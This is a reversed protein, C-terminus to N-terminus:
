NKILNIREKMLALRKERLLTRRALDYEARKDKLLQVNNFESQLVSPHNLRTIEYADLEINAKKALRFRSREDRFYDYPSKFALMKLLTPALQIFIIALILVWSVVPAVKFAIKSGSVFGPNPSFQSLVFLKDRQSILTQKSIKLYILGLPNNENALNDQISKDFRNLESTIFHICDKIQKSSSSVRIVYRPSIAEDFCTTKLSNEPILDYRSDAEKQPNSDIPIQGQPLVQSNPLEYAQRYLDRLHSLNGQDIADFTKELSQQIELRYAINIDSKFIWLQFPIAIMFSCIASFIIGFMARGFQKLGLPQSSASNETINILKQTNFIFLTWATTLVLFLFGNLLLSGLHESKFELANPFLLSYFLIGGSLLGLFSVLFVGLAQAVFKARDSWLYEGHQKLITADAGSFLSILM